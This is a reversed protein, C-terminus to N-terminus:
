TASHCGNDYWYGAAFLCVEAGSYTCQVVGETVLQCDCHQDTQNNNEVVTFRFCIFSGCINM